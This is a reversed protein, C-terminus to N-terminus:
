GMFYETNLERLYIRTNERNFYPEGSKNYKILSLRNRSDPLDTRSLVLNDRIDEIIVHFGKGTDYIYVM